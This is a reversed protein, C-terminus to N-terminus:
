QAPRPYESAKKLKWGWWFREKTACEALGWWFEGTGSKRLRKQRV